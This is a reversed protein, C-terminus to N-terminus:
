RLREIITANAMGGGECMAQLGFRGDVQDLANVLTAMLKGGSAGLPHGNAIAGGNINVLEPDAGTERQWALVVPAFAENIEFVDIDGVSLGATALVKETAPIVGTLMLVPDDGVVAFHRVAAKPELGLERATSREMLLVGSAGDSIQSSNGATVIWEIEPYREAVEESHFAPPLQALTELTSEPRIGEDRDVIEGTPGEGRDLELPILEPELRGEATANAARVHSDVSYTDVTERSLEWRSAILEASIGQNVLGGESAYRSRVRPGAPDKDMSSSFMPVRSMVEVGAAIVADYAGAMIGQAAFHIAQQSSGCQRDVTTAPVTEPFGAALVGHRAINFAQEGAQSVCGTIVDDLRGPDIGSREALATLVESLLDVPHWGSLAGGPKGKGVPTRLAEVIVAEQM